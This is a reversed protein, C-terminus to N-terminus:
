DSAKDKDVSDSLKGLDLANAFPSVAFITLFLLAKFQM